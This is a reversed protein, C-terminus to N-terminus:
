QAAPSRAMARAFDPKTAELIEFIARRDRVSLSSFAPSTDRGALIETLRSYVYQKVCPMLYNFAKSYILFSLPYKFLRTDLDLDRLSRGQSDFPGLSEFWKEYGSNGRVPAPIPAADVFLMGRVLPELLAKFRAQMVPSLQDWSPDSTSSGPSRRELLMRSKYNAHIILNHVDVQHEFVMVAVVDSKDTLYPSADFFRDLNPVDGRNLRAVPIVRTADSPVLNGLQRLGGFQGTVYWGGWRETIPTADTTQSAVSDTIVKGDDIAYSSLFLFNPVGGGQLSFTDHCALCRLTQREIKPPTDSREGLTYFVTGLASDMTSIEVMPTGEIWAVYTDDNFYIARPTAPSIIQTQLSTKSFVLTQSTPSIRLAELLSDLYGRPARYRLKVAGSVLESQLTAIDNHTAEGSYHIFPYDTDYILASGSEAAEVGQGAPAVGPADKTQLGAARASPSLALAAVCLLVLGAGDWRGRLRARSRGKGTLTFRRLVNGREDITLQFRSNESFFTLRYRGADEETGKECVSTIRGDRMSQWLLAPEIALGEAVLAADIRFTQDEVEVRAKGDAAAAPESGGHAPLETKPLHRKEIM